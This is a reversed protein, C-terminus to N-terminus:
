PTRRTGRDGSAMIRRMMLYGQLRGFASQLGLGAHWFRLRLAHLLAGVVPRAAWVCATRFPYGHKALVYGMGRAYSPVRRYWDGEGHQMVIEPHHAVLAPDYYERYGLALAKLSVDQMECAGFDTGSGVGLSEDFGGTAAMVDRRALFAWEIQSFWVSRRDVWCATTGFKGNITRGTTDTPRGCVLDAGTAEFLAVAKAMFDVPYWCDDDPFIVIDAQAAQWGFNRNRCLGVLDPTRHHVVPLDTFDALIGALRDDANQDVILISTVPRTQDRLSHM